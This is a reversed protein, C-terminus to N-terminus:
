GHLALDASAAACLVAFALKAGCVGWFAVPNQTREIKGLGRLYAEGSRVSAILWWVFFAAAALMFAASGYQRPHSASM